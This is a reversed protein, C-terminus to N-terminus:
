GKDRLLNVLPQGFNRASKRDPEPNLEIILPGDPGIAMDLGVFNIGPFMSLVRRSLELCDDWYPVVGGEILVGTNPHVPYYTRTIGTDQLEELEGSCLKVNATLGGLSANDTVQNNRGVRLIAGLVASGSKREIVWIRVTNLSSPHFSSLLEHQDVYEEILLGKECFKSLYKKFFNKLSYIEEPSELNVLNIETSGRIIKAAVFGVGGWGEAMKFCIKSFDCDLLLSELAHFNNLKKGQSDNGGSEHFFGVYTPTPIGMLKLLSKEALKHQSFKRYQKPNLQDIRKNYQAANMFCKKESLSLDRRWLSAEFYFLPGLGRCIYLYIIELFQLCVGVGQEVKIQRALCFVQKLKNM